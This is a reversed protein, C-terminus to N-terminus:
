WGMVPADGQCSLAPAKPKMSNVADQGSTKGCDAVYANRLSQRYVRPVQRCFSEGDDVPQRRIWLHGLRLRADPTGQRQEHRFISCGMQATGVFASVM